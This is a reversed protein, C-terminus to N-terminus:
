RHLAEEFAPALREWGYSAVEKFNDEGFQALQAGSLAAARQLAGALGGPEYVLERQRHLREAIVGLDPAVVAKRFGMAVCISGSNEVEAFPLVVADAANYFIQLEDEPIFRAHWQIRPDGKAYEEIEKAYERIFPRGAIVLRWHPQGIQRFTSILEHLGKYPRISGLWLLVFEDRGVGLRTRAVLATVTNPYYHTFDGEPVVRIKAPEAGTVACVRPVSSQSFVRIISAHRAFYRLWKTEDGKDNLNEHGRLNHVTWVIPRRFVKTMIKVDIAFAVRKLCTIWPTRGFLYRDIWDFYLLKPRFKLCTLTGAFFRTNVGNVVEYRGTKRWGAIRLLQGPDETGAVPLVAIRTMKAPNNM